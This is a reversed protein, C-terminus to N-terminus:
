KLNLPTFKIGFKYSNEHYSKPLAPLFQLSKLLKKLTKELLINSSQKIEWNLLRGNKEIELQVFVSYDSERLHM